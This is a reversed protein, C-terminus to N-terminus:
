EELRVEVKGPGVVRATFEHRTEPNVVKVLQGNGGASRAQGRALVTLGGDVVSVAVDEGPRVLPTVRFMGATLVTGPAIDRTAENGLVQELHTLPPQAHGALPQRVAEVDSAQAQSGRGIRVRSVLVPQVVQVELRPFITRWRQGDVLVQVPVNGAGALSATPAVRLSVRGGPLAPVLNEVAMDRWTVHVDRSPVQLRAVAAARVADLVEQERLSPGAWAATPWLLLLAVLFRPSM